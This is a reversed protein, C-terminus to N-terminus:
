GAMDPIRLYDDVGPPLRLPSDAVFLIKQQAASRKLGSTVDRALELWERVAYNKAQQALQQRLAASAAPRCALAWPVGSWVHELLQDFWHPDDLDHLSVWANPEALDALEAPKRQDLWDLKCPEHLLGEGAEWCDHWNNGLDRNTWRDRIRLTVSFDIGFHLPPSPPVSLDDGIPLRALESLSVAVELHGRRTAFGEDRAVRLAQKLLAKLDSTKPIPQKVFAWERGRWIWVRAATDGLDIFARSPMRREVDLYARQQAIVAQDSGQLWALLAAQLVSLTNRETAAVGEEELRCAALLQLRM